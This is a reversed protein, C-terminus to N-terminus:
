TIYSFALLCLHDHLCMTVYTATNDNYPIVKKLKFDKFEKPDLPSKEQLKKFAKPVDNSYAGGLAYYAAFGTASAVLAYIPLNSNGKPKPAETSFRRVQLRM